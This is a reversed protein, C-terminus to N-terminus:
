RNDYGNARNTMTSTKTQLFGNKQFELYPSDKMMMPKRLADYQAKPKGGYIASKEDKEVVWAMEESSNTRARPDRNGPMNEITIM